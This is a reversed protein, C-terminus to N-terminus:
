KGIKALIIYIIGLSLTITAMFILGITVRNPGFDILISAVVTYFIANKFGGTYIYSLVAGIIGPENSRTPAVYIVIIFAIGLIILMIGNGTTQRRMDMRMLKIHPKDSPKSFIRLLLGIIMISVGLFLLVLGLFNFGRVEPFYFYVFFGFFCISFGILSSAIKFFERFSEGVAKDMEKFVDVHFNDQTCEQCYGNYNINQQESIERGCKRCYPM